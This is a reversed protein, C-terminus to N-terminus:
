FHESRRDKIKAAERLAQLPSRYLAMQKGQQYRSKRQEAVNADAVPTALVNDVRIVYIGNAGEIPPVVKGKNSPNFSAGVVRPESGLSRASQTTQQGIMRLSDVAEIQKGGLAAAAAELTTANGIKQKLKEAVKKNKLTPEILPRAKAVSMTGEKNIETIIAVVYNDGVKDNADFIVEGPKANYVSKVFRRSFGLGQVQYSTPTIDAAPIPKRKLKEANADFSKQDLSNGAFASAENSANADTEQSAEIRKALYAVKYHPELNKQDLIEILHYGFETKVIKKEGKKGFFASDNFAQVMQGQVFYDSLPGGQVFQVQVLGGKEASGKDSSFKKALSDFNAGNKIALAISDIRRKAISDELIPQGTKPDATQILIHRAKVSDPLIKTDLLKAFVYNGEDIYPGFVSNVGFAHVTDKYPGQMQSKPVYKDSYPIVSGNRSLFAEINKTTDFEPKLATIKNKIDASDAAGPLASFTVYAISRSEPQKYDDKHKDLYEKIEKDSIKITSDTNAAYYDRVLSIKALLSNDAIQKEIFWRPYNISNSFLSNYKDTLRKSEHYDIFAITQEKATMEEATGKKMRLIQDIRQKAAQGNYIGSSDTFGKKLDDPANPGYLIDGMEKKGVKIGLKDLESNQLIDNVEKNWVADLAQQQIAAGSGYGQNEMSKEQEDVKKSFDSLEITTGNVKGVATSNGSQFLRGGNEFALMVVFIMLAVAIIIAMLKAYKEQIKQIVSM